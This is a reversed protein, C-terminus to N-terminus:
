AQSVAHPYVPWGGEYILHQRTQKVARVFAASRVPSLVLTKSAFHFDHM